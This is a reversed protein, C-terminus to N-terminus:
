FSALSGATIELAFDMLAVAFLIMASTASMWSDIGLTASIVGHHAVSMFHPKMITAAM